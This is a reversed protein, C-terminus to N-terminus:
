AYRIIFYINKKVESSRIRLRFKVLSLIVKQTHAINMIDGNRRIYGCGLHENSRKLTAVKVPAFNYVRARLVISALASSCLTYFSLVVFFCAPFGRVAQNCFDSSADREDFSISRTPKKM